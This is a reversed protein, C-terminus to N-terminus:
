LKNKNRLENIRSCKPSCTKVNGGRVLFKEKCVVCEKVCAEKSYMYYDIMPNNNCAWFAIEQETDMNGPIFLYIKDYYKGYVIKVLGKKIFRELGKKAIARGMWRDITTRTVNRFRANNYIRFHSRNDDTVSEGNELGDLIKMKRKHLVLLLYLLHRDTECGKRCPLNRIWSYESYTIPVKKKSLMNRQVAEVMDEVESARQDAKKYANRKLKLLKDPKHKLNYILNEYLIDGFCSWLISKDSNINEEQFYEIDILYLATKRRYGIRERVNYTAKVINQLVNHCYLHYVDYGLNKNVKAISYKKRLNKRFKETDYIKLRLLKDQLAKYTDSSRVIKFDTDQFYAPNFDKGDAPNIWINEKNSKTNESIYGSIRNVNSRKNVAKDDCCQDSKKDKAYKFFYPYEKEIWENYMGEYEGLSPMYQSKPNDICFNNYATMIRVFDYDVECAMNLYKTIVNSIDGISENKFSRMLCDFINKKNIESPESKKMEYYLPPKNRDVLVLFAEDPTLLMEDGDVDCQLTKTLLDHTSIVTDMGQFWRRCEDSKELIRICHECDSLHPSRLCCVEKIDEKEGYLANYVHNKPILGRPNEDGCFWYECAAYLDPCIYNYYGKIYPKGSMAKKRESIIKKSIRNRVYSDQLMQPYAKISAYFPDLGEERQLDAGMIKLATDPNMKADNIREVTLESLRKIKEDTVNERPITQYFQYASSVVPDDSYPYHMTNNVCIKLGNEKFAKKYDDWSEYYKWMKLQSGNLIIKINDKIYDVLFETGWIDKIRDKVIRKEQKETIFRQFDFPFVAGKIWGGRIQCSQPFVGPLFIGAGDMHNVPVPMIKEEIILSEMDLYNVREIVDTEFEPLILIQDINIDVSPEVSKSFVLSTYALYKGTNCGGNRNITDLSLGCMLRGQNEESFKQQMLCVQRKKMQNASSSYVIYKEGDILIGNEIIQKLVIEHWSYVDKDGTGPCDLIVIEKILPIHKPEREDYVFSESLRVCENEFGAILKNIVPENNKDYLAKKDIKRTESFSMVIHLLEKIIEQKDETKSAKKYQRYTMRENETCCDFISLNFMMYRRAKAITNEKM